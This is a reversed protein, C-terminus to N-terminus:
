RIAPSASPTVVIYRGDRLEVAEGSRIVVSAGPRLTQFTVPKEEVIIVTDPAVRFMRGDDLVVVNAKSDLRTVKGKHDNAQATLGTTLVLAAAVALTVIRSRMLVGRLDM